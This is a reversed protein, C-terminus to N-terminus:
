EAEFRVEIISFKGGVNKLLVNTDFNGKSSKYEGIAYYNAGSSGQHVVSYGAPPHKAFFDKLVFQAQNKAYRQDVGPLTLEVNQNFNAALQGANGSKIASTVKTMVTKADQAYLGSVAGSAFALLLVLSFINIIKKM